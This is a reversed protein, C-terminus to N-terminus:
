GLKRQRRLAAALGVGALMAATPEPVSGIAGLSSAAFEQKWVILDAGDVDGDGDADGDSHAIGPGPGLGRQWVLFDNGDVDDDEEFDARAHSEAFYARADWELISVPTPGIGNGAPQYLISLIGQREWRTLDYKPEWLRMNDNTSLDVLRWDDRAASESYAVTVGRGRQYDSYVVLVRNEDDVMVIPRSM